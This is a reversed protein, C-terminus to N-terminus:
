LMAQKQGRVDSRLRIGMYYYEREGRYRSREKEIGTERLKM